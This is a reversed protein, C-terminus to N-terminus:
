YRDSDRNSDRTNDRDGDRDIDTTSSDDPVDAEIQEKRVQETVEQQETVTETEMRVREVPVTEKDVVVREETLTVEAEADTLDAGSLADPDNPDIPERVLRVEERQVPVTKTVNETVVFKRLRAKGTAVKETGIRVQEESRTMSGENDRDRDRDMDRDRDVDMDRDRDVDGGVLDVDRDSDDTLQDSTGGGMGYYRYLEEEQEPTIHGDEDVNPADKVKDKSYPVRVENGSSSAERVPVFSESGGLMGTKVTVWEPNGTEDDLYVQGVKGIKDGSEDVVVGDDILGQIENSDIM